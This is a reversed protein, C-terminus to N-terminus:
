RRSVKGSRRRKQPGVQKKLNKLHTKAQKFKQAASMGRKRKAEKQVSMMLPKMRKKEKNTLGGRRGEKRMLFAEKREETAERANAKKNAHLNGLKAPNLIWDAGEQGGDNESDDDESSSLLADSDISGSEAVVAKLKKIRRFDENSLIREAALPVSASEPREEEAEDVESDNEEEEDSEADDEDEEEDDEDEEEDDEDEEEFEEEEDGDEEEFEEEEDGDEEEDSQEEEEKQLRRRKKAAELLEIGDVDQAVDTNDGFVRVRQVTGKQVAIAAEKGRLSRHLLEPHVERYVNLLARAACSVSKSTKMNRYQVLDMLQDRSLALPARECIGRLTNLGVTLVEPRCHDSVFHTLVHRVVSQMEEPPVNSHCAQALCALIKTVHRNSPYLYKELFPYLNPLVLERRYVLRCVLRLALLRYEFSTRDTNNMARKLIDETFNYPEILSDIAGFDCSSMEDTMKKRKKQNLGEDESDVNPNKKDKPSEPQMELMAAAFNSEGLFIHMAASSVKAEESKCLALLMSNVTFEDVWDKRKYLACVLGAVARLVLESTTKGNNVFKMLFDQVRKKLELPPVHIVGAFSSSQNKRKQQKGSVSSTRSSIESLLRGHMLSRLEKDEITFLKFLEQLVTMLPVADRRLLALIAAVLVKRATPHIREPERRLTGFVIQPFDLEERLRLYCPYVHAIFSVLEQFHKHPRGPTVHFTQATTEFSRFQIRYEQEYGEPDRRIQSQLLPLSSM